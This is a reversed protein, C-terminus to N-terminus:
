FIAVSCISGTQVKKRLVFPATPRVSCESVTWWSLFLNLFADVINYFIPIAHVSDGLVFITQPWCRHRHGHTRRCFETQLRSSFQWTESNAIKRTLMTTRSENQVKTVRWLERSIRMIIGHNISNNSINRAHCNKTRSLKIRDIM